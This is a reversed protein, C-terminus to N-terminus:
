GFNRINYVEMIFVEFSLLVCTARNNNEVVVEQICGVLFISVLGLLQNEMEQLIRNVHKSHVMITKIM